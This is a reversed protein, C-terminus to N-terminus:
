VDDGNETSKSTYRSDGKGPVLRANLVSTLENRLAAHEDPLTRVLEVVPCVDAGSCGGGDSGFFSPSLAQEAFAAAQMNGSRVRNLAKRFTELKQRSGGLASLARRGAVAVRRKREAEWVEYDDVVQQIRLGGVSGFVDDVRQHKHWVLRNKFKFYEIRHEPLAKVLARERGQICKNTADFCEEITAPQFRDKYGIRFDSTCLAPDYQIRTIVERAPRLAADKEGQSLDASVGFLRRHGTTSPDRLRQLRMICSKEDLADDQHDWLYQDDERTYPEYLHRPMCLRVDVLHRPAAHAHLLATLDARMFMLMACDARTRNRM